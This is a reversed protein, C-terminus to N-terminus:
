NKKAPKWDVETVTIAKFPCVEVCNYCTFCEVENVVVAKRKKFDWDLV